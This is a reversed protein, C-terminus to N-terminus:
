SPGIQPGEDPKPRQAWDDRGRRPQAARPAPSPRTRLAPPRGDLTTKLSERHIPDVYRSAPAAPPDAQLVARLAKILPNNSEGSPRVAQPRGEDQPRVMQVVDSNRTTISRRIARALSVHMQHTAAAVEAWQAPSLSSLASREAHARVQHTLEAQQMVVRAEPEPRPGTGLDRLPTLRAQIAALRDAGAALWEASEEAGAVTQAARQLVNLAYLQRRTIAAAATTSLRGHGGHGFRTRLLKLIEASEVQAAAIDDITTVRRIGTDTRDAQRGAVLDVNRGGAHGSDGYWGATRATSAAIARAVARHEADPHHELDDLLTRSALQDDIAVVAEAAVAIDGILYWAMAADTRWPQESEAQLAATALMTASAASEWARVDPATHTRASDLVRTPPLSRDETPLRPLQDLVRSLLTPGERTLDAVRTEGDYQRAHAPRHANGLVALREALSGITLERLRLVLARDAENDPAAEYDILYKLGAAATEAYEGYVSM